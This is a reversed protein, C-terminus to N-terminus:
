RTYEDSHEAKRLRNPPQTLSPTDVLKVQLTDSAAKLPAFSAM